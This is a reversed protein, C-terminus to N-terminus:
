EVAKPFQFIISGGDKGTHEVAQAPKGFGRDLLEQIAKLQAMIPAPCKIREGEQTVNVDVEEGAAVKALREILKERNVIDRCHEKLWDPTRGGGKNGPNGKKLGSIDKKRIAM